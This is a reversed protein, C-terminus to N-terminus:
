SQDVAIPEKLQQILQTKDTAKMLTEGILAVTIGNQQLTQTDQKSQVGSEAVFIRDTPVLQRLRASNNFDVSFDNLNRNNVGIIKAGAQLANKIEIEDHAEVLASLGLQDALRLYTELQQPTLIKVILLIASAGALKAEYIM